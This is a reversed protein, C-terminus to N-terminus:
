PQGYEGEITSEIFIEIIHTVKLDFTPKIETPQDDDNGDGAGMDSSILRLNYDHTIKETNSM